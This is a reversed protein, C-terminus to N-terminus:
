IGNPFRWKLDPQRYRRRLWREFMKETAKTNRDIWRAVEEDLAIHWKEYGHHAEYDIAQARFRSDRYRYKGKLKPHRELAEFVLKSIPHHTQPGHVGRKIIAAAEDDTRASAAQSM